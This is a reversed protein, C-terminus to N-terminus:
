AVGGLYAEQVRPDARIAAPLGEALKAGFDMVVIRDVLGMVFDMDHEILLITMGEARLERLLASLKTKELGHLGAAPEDLIVLVPDAALARAVELIRQQGLPLNGALEHAKEALGARRLQRMAEHRASGEEARDLRLAGALMGSRTRLYVGLMTNELVSMDPRLKVHQFTRAIGRAAIHRTRAGTIDEGLFRIRGGNPKLIGTILNFMTSKGAGNPGILGLIEGTKIEFGVGNVAALRGFNRSAREIALLPTGFDPRTRRPLAPAEAIAPPARRPLLHQFFPVIGGRAQQLILIMLAAFVVIELQASNRTLSPLVDQLVDKLLTVVAAGVLAGGIHGAGGLLAMLLYEIGPQVDFAGPAIYRQVHAYLWGAVGALLAAVIFVKLRVRFTDIGLSEAMAPGGRLSRVARGERSDLLNGCLVMALGLPLWILYYGARTSDFSLAGLSVPPIHSVGNYRGMVELNGFAYYIAIGWAITSVPLFHGSLRLTALGLIMATAGTLLLALVLGLWSSGGEITTVWATAYAGIGVFAAQGFSTMGGVGTLLVLGLAVLASIGMYNMLTLAYGGLLLPAAALLAVGLIAFAKPWARSV